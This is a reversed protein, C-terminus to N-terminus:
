RRRGGGFSRKKRDDDDEEAQPCTSVVDLTVPEDPQAGQPTQECVYLAELDSGAEPGAVTIADEAVGADGLVQRAEALTRGEPNTGGRASLAFSTGAVVFLAIFRRM